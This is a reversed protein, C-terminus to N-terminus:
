ESQHRVSLRMALGALVTWLALAIASFWVPTSSPGPLVSARLGEGAFYLPNFQAAPELWGPLDGRQFYIAGTGILVVSIAFSLTSTEPPSRTWTAILAGLYSSLAAALACIPIVWPSIEVSVGAIAPGLALAVVVAPLTLVFFSAYTALPLLSTSVPLTRFYILMGNQRMYAYNSAVLNQNQVTLSMIVAGALIYSRRVPDALDGAVTRLLWMTAVPLLVGLFLQQRWAWRWNTLQMLFFDSLDRCYRPRVEIM